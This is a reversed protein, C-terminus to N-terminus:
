ARLTANSKRCFHRPVRGRRCSCSPNSEVRAIVDRVKQVRAVSHELYLSNPIVVMAGNPLRM